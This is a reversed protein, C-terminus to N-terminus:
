VDHHNSFYQISDLIETWKVAEKRWKEDNTLEYLRWLNGAFFGSTWDYIDVTVLKGNKTVTRPIKVPDVAVALTNNFQGKIFQLEENSLVPKEKRNCATLITILALAVSILAYKKM